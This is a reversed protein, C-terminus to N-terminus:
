VEASIQYTMKTIDQMIGEVLCISSWVFLVASCLIKVGHKTVRLDASFSFCM